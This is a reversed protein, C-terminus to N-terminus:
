VNRLDVGDDTPDEIKYQNTLPRKMCNEKFAVVQRVRIMHEIIAMNQLYVCHTNCYVITTHM